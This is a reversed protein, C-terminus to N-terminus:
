GEDGDYSVGVLVLGDPPATKALAGRNGTQIADLLRTDRSDDYPDDYPIGETVTFTDLAFMLASAVLIRVMRRLFRDGRLEISLCDDLLVCRAHSLLCTTDQRDGSAISCGAYDLHINELRRLSADMRHALAELTGEEGVFRVLSGLVERDIMYVYCRSTCQFTPHFFAGISEVNWCRWQYDDRVAASELAAQVDALSQTTRVRAVQASAHVGRDTRGAVRVDSGGLAQQIQGQVTIQDPQIQWGHFCSGDYSIDLRYNYKKRVQRKNPLNKIRTQYHRGHYFDAFPDNSHFEESTNPINSSSGLDMPLSLITRLRRRAALFPETKWMLRVAYEHPTEEFAVVDGSLSLVKRTGNRHDGDRIINMRRSLNLHKLLFCIALWRYPLVALMM